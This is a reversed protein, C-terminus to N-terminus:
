VFSIMISVTDENIYIPRKISSSANDKQVGNKYKLRM